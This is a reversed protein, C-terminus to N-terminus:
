STGNQSRAMSSDCHQSSCHQPGEHWFSDVRLVSFTLGSPKAILWFRGRLWSACSTYSCRMTGSRLTARSSGAARKETTASMRFTPRGLSCPATHLCHKARHSPVVSFVCSADIWNALSACRGPLARLPSTSTSRLAHRTLPKTVTRSGAPPYTTASPQVCAASESSNLAASLEPAAFANRTCPPRVAGSAAACPRTM